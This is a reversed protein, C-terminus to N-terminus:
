PRIALREPPDPTSMIAFIDSFWMIEVVIYVVLEHVIRRIPRVSEVAQEERRAERDGIRGRREFGVRMRVTM